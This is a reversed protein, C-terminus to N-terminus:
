QCSCCNAHADNCSQKGSECKGAAWTDNALTVAIDCIKKADDCIADSLKCVDGCTPTTAPHCSPDASPPVAMPTAMTAMTAQPQFTGGKATIDRELAEIQAHPDGALVPGPAIPPQHGSATAPAASMRGAACAIMGGLLAGLALGRIV